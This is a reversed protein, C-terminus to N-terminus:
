RGGLGTADVAVLEVVHEVSLVAGLSEREPGFTLQLIQQSVGTIMGAAELELIGRLLLNLILWGATAYELESHRRGFLVRRAREGPHLTRLATM